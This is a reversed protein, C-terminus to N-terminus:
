KLTSQVSLENRSEKLIMHPSNRSKTAMDYSPVTNLHQDLSVYTFFVKLDQTPANYSKLVKLLFLRKAVKKV